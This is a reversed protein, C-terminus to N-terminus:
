QAAIETPPATVDLEVTFIAGGDPHNAALLRGNFDRVINYSISLGLGLGKGPAKTTFFPDFAQGLAAESLGPGTDRV